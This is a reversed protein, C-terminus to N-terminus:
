GSGGEGAKPPRSRVLYVVTAVLAVVLAAAVVVMITAVPV